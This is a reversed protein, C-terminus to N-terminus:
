GELGRIYKIANEVSAMSSTEYEEQELIFHKVGMAQAKKIVDAFDILGKDVEVNKKGEGIQKVHLIELRDKHKEMYALSDIDAYESWFIDLEMVASKPLNDFLIDLLYEGDDVVFEHAHNHYGFKLGAAAVKEAVPTLKKALELVDAKTEMDAWPCIIYQAGITKHYTIEEDLNNLLKDLMTHSGIAKIGNEDLAQKMKEAPIGGFGAFEVGTYNLGKNGLKELTAIFDKETEDRISYLQLAFDNLLKM